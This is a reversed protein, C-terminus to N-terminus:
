SYCNASGTFSPNTGTLECVARWYQAKTPFRQVVTCPATIPAFTDGGEAWTSGDLSWQLRFAASAGAGSMATVNLVVSVWDGSAQVASTQTTSQTITGSFIPSSTPM